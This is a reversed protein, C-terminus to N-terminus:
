LDFTDALSAVAAAGADILEQGRRPNKALGLIRVGASTAAQVDSVSDGIFM